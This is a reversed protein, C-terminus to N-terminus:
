NEGGGGIRNRDEDGEQLCDFIHVSHGDDALSLYYKPHDQDLACDSSLPGYSHLFFRLFCCHVFNAIHLYGM